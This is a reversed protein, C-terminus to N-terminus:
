GEVGPNTDFITPFFGLDTSSDDHKDFM